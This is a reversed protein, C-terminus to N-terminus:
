LIWFDRTRIRLDTTTQRWVLSTILLNLSSIPSRWAIEKKSHELWKAHQKVM